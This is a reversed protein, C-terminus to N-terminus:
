EKPAYPLLHNKLVPLFVQLFSGCADAADAGLNPPVLGALQIKYLYPRSAYTFRPHEAANWVGGDSWGYYVRLRNGEIGNSRLNTVWFSHRAGEGDVLATRETPGSISYERSSYCIEPTHVSIPGSPGLLVAVTVLEQTAANRYTRMLHGSCQLIERTAPPLQESSEMRWDGFQTPVGSLRRAAELTEEHLGWRNTLRGHVVGSVIASAVIVLVALLPLTHKM